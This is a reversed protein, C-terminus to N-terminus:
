FTVSHESKRQARFQMEVNRRCIRESTRSNLRKSAVFSIEQESIGVGEAWFPKPAIILQAIIAEWTPSQETSNNLKIIDTLTYEEAM